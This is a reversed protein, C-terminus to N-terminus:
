PRLHGSLVEAALDVDAPSTSVHFSLRLRGARTAAVIGARRLLEPVEEDTRAAVIASGAFPLGV